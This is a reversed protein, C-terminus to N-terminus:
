QSILNKIYNMRSNFLNPLYTKRLNKSNPMTRAAPVWKKFMAGLSGDAKRIPEASLILGYLFDHIATDSKAEKEKLRVTTEAITLQKSKKIRDNEESKRKQHSKSEFIHERIRTSIKSNFVFENFCYKCNLIKTKQKKGNELVTEKITTMLDEPFQKVWEEATKARNSMKKMSNTAM